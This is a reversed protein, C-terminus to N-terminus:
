TKHYVNQQAELPAVLSFSLNHVYERRLILDYGPKLAPWVGPMREFEVTDLVYQV